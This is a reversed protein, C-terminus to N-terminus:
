HTNSKRDIKQVRVKLKSWTLNPARLVSTDPGVKLMNPAPQVLNLFLLTYKTRVLGWAYTHQLVRKLFIVSSPICSYPKSQAYWCMHHRMRSVGKMKIKVPAAFICVAWSLGMLAALLIFTIKISDDRIRVCVMPDTATCCQREQAM